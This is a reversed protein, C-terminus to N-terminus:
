GPHDLLLLYPQPAASRSITRLARLGRPMALAM